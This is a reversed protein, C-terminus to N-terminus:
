AESMGLTHHIAEFAGSRMAVNSSTQAQRCRVIRKGDFNEPHGLSIMLSSIDGNIASMVFINTGITDWIPTGKLWYSSLIELLRTTRISSASTKCSAHLIRCPPFIKRSYVALHGLRGSADNGDYWPVCVLISHLVPDLKSYCNKAFWPSCVM